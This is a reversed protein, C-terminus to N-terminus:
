PGEHPLPEPQAVARTAYHVWRAGSANNWSEITSPHMGLLDALVATPASKALDLLTTNHAARAPVGLLKLRRSLSAPHLHRGPSHGPYLWPSPLDRLPQTPATRSALQAVLSAVPPHLDIPDRGLRLQTGGEPTTSVHTHSLQVIRLPPQGYLLVLLVAVRDALTWTPDSGTVAVGILRRRHEDAMFETPDRRPVQPVAIPTSHGNRVAWVLFRKLPVRHSPHAHLWSDFRPQHRALLSLGHARLDTLYAIVAALDSINNARIPRKARRARREAAPLLSWRLYAHLLLRDEAPAEHDIRLKARTALRHRRLDHRDLLGASELLARAQEATYRATLALQDLDEHTPPRNRHALDRLLRATARDRIWELLAHPTPTAVLAEILPVWHPDLDGTTRSLLATLRERALCTGCVASAERSAAVADVVPTLVRYCIRHEGCRACQQPRRPRCKACYPHGEFRAAIPRTRGCVFCAATRARHACNPCIAGGDHDRASVPRLRGCTSCEEHFRADRRKCTSCLRVGDVTTGAQRQRGCAACTVLKRYPEACRRCLPKGDDLRRQVPATAGCGSCPEAHHSLYCAPCIRAGDLWHPLRQDNRGCSACRPRIVPAGLSLLEDILRFVIPPASNDGDTLADPHDLLWNALGAHAIAAPALRELTTELEDKPVDPAIAGILDLMALTRAARRTAANGTWRGTRDPQQGKYCPHCSPRGDEDRTAVWREQGCASCREFKAVDRTRCTSCLGTGDPLRRAVKRTRGCEACPETPFPHCVRCVRMGDASPYAYRRPRGCSPCTPQVLGDHGAARLTVVVEALVPSTRPDDTTLRKPHDRLEEALRCRATAGRAHRELAQELTGIAITPDATRIANIIFDTTAIRRAAGNVGWDAASM